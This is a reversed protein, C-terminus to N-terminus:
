KCARYVAELLEERNIPKTFTKVAGFVRAMELHSEPRVRGGGSMAIIKVDPYTHRLERITELGEKEPMILDTIILRAPRMKQLKLAEEGNSADSVDFGEKELMQRLMSRIQPEDDIILIHEAVNIDKRDNM